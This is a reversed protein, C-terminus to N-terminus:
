LGFLFFFFYLRGLHLGVLLCVCDLGFNKAWYGHRGQRGGEVMQVWSIFEYYRALVQIKNVCSNFFLM